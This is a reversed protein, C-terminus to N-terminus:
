QDTWYCDYMVKVEWWTVGEAAYEDNYKPESLVETVVADLMNM